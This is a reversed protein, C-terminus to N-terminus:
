YITNDITDCVTYVPNGRHWLLFHELEASPLVYKSHLNASRVDNAFIQFSIQYTHTSKDKMIILVSISAYKSSRIQSYLGPKHFDWWSCAFAFYNLSTWIANIYKGSFDLNCFLQLFRICGFRVLGPENVSYDRKNRM